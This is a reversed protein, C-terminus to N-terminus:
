NTALTPGYLNVLKPQNMKNNLLIANVKEPTGITKVMEFKSNVFDFERSKMALSSHGWNM